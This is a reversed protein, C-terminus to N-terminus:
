DGNREIDYQEDEEVGCGPTDDEGLLVVSVRVTGWGDGCPRRNSPGM